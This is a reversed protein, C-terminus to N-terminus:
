LQGVANHASKKYRSEGFDYLLNPFYPYVNKVGKFLIQSESSRYERFVCESLVNKQFDKAHFKVWIPHCTCFICTFIRKPDKTLIGKVRCLKVFSV